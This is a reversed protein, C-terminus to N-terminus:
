EFKSFVREFEKAKGGLEYVPYVEMKLFKWDEIRMFPKGVGLIFPLPLPQLSPPGM